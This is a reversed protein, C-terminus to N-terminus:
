LIIGESVFRRFENYCMKLHSVSKILFIFADKKILKKKVKFIYRYKNTAYHIM